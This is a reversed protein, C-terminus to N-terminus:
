RKEQIERRINNLERKLVMQSNLILGAMLSAVGIVIGGAAWYPWTLIEDLFGFGAWYGTFLSTGFIIMIIGLSGFLFLPRRYSMAKVIMRLLGVGHSVPNKSHGKPVSYEVSIPVEALRLEMDSALNLMDSEIGFGESELSLLMELCQRNLARFGSQTDSANGGSSINTALNLVKQGVQRYAPIAYGLKMFRSGVVIDASEELLPAILLPMEDPNNQGDGDLMVLIDYDNDHAYHFGRMVAAAKGQNVDMSIVKAGSLESIKATLDKSGDDIVLVEDAHQRALTIVTGITLEENYAPIVAIVSSL